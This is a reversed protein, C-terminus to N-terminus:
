SQTKRRQSFADAWWRDSREVELLVPAQEFTM